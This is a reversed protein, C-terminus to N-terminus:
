KSALDLIQPIVITGFKRIQTLFQRFSKAVQVLTVDYVGYTLHCSHLLANQIVTGISEATLTCALLMRPPHRFLCPLNGPMDRKCGKISPSLPAIRCLTYFKGM